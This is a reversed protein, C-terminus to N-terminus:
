PLPMMDFAVFALVCIGVMFWTLSISRRQRRRKAAPALGTHHLM